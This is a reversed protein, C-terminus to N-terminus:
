YGEVTLAGEAGLFRAVDAAEARLGAMSGRPLRGFPRVAVTERGGTRSRSWTGAVRGDVVVSPLIWSGSTLRAAHRPDLVPSRDRHGLLYGDFAPLLRVPAPGPDDPPAPPPGALEWARRAEGAPLGSWYRLDAADSPGYAARYRRALEALAADQEREREPAVWDDLLVYTPEEDPRDPGRCLIRRAAALLVIHAPQQDSADVPLCRALLEEMLEARV